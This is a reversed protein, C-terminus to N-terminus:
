IVITIPQPRGESMGAQGRNKRPHLPHTRQILPPLLANFQSSSPHTM